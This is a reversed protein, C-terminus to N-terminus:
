NHIQTLNTELLTKLIWYDMGDIDLSLIGFQKPCKNKELISVITDKEFFTNIHKSVFLDFDADNIFHHRPPKHYIYNKKDDTTGLADILIGDWAHEKLLRFSNSGLPTNGSGIDLIFKKISGINDVLYEIVGEEGHQAWFGTHNEVTCAYEGISTEYQSLNLLWDKKM